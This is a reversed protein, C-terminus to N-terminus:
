VITLGSVTLTVSTAAGAFARIMSAAPLVAGALEPSVYTEGPAISRASILTTGAALAGGTTIGATITTASASTNCFVARGIKVTTQTPATYIPADGSGLQQPPVLQIQTVTTM